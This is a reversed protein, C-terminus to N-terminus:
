WRVKQGLMGEDDSSGGLPEGAGGEAESGGQENDSDGPCAPVLISHPPGFLPDSAWCEIVGKM